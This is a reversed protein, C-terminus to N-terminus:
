KPPIWTTTMQNKNASRWPDKNGLTVSFLLGLLLHMEEVSLSEVGDGFSGFFNQSFANSLM